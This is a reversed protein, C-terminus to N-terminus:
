DYSRVDSMKVFSKELDEAMELAQKKPDAIVWPNGCKTCENYPESLQTKVIIPYHCCESIM